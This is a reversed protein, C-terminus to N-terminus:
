FITPTIPVTVIQRIKNRLLENINKSNNLNTVATQRTSNVPTTAALRRQHAQARCLHRHRHGTIYYCPLSFLRM